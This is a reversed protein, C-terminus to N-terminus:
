PTPGLAGVIAAAYDSGLSFYGDDTYHIHDYRLAYADQDVLIVNPMKAAIAAQAAQVESVFVQASGNTMASNLRGIVLPVSGLASRLAGLFTALNDQYAAATASGEADNEGQVWVIAALKAGSATLQQQTFAVAQAFLNNTRSPWSSTPLWDYALWTSGYAFQMLEVRKGYAADLARGMALPSGFTWVGDNQVAQLPQLPFTAVPPQPVGYNGIQAVYRVDPDPALLGFDPSAQIGDSGTLGLRGMNAANSQGILLVALPQTPPVSADPGAMTGIVADPVSANGDPKTISSPPAACASIALIAVLLRM